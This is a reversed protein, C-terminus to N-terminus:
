NAYPMMLPLTTESIRWNEFGVFILVLSLAKFISFACFVSLEHNEQLHKQYNYEHIRHFANIFTVFTQFHASLM